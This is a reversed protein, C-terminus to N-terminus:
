QGDQEEKEVLGALIQMGGESNIREWRELIQLELSYAILFYVDFYHGKKLEQIKEWRARDLSLEAEIPSDQNVAWQAFGATFPDPYNEGRIYKLPDKSYKAGRHRTIENRLSLEFEKWKRLIPVSDVADEAPSISARNLIDMDSSALQERCRLCFENYSIPAKMGFELMPLGAILYYYQRM